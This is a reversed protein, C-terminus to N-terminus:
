RLRALNTEFDLSSRKRRRQFTFKHQEKSKTPSLVMNRGVFGVFLVRHADSKMHIQIDLVFPHQDCYAKEVM